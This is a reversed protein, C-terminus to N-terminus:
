LQKLPFVSNFFFKASFYFSNEGSPCEIPHRTHECWKIPHIDPDDDNVWYAYNPPWSDYLIQIEYDRVDVVTAPRILSPVKRDTVELRMGIKFNIPARTHFLRQPVADAKQSKLYTSWKFDSSYETLPLISFKCSYFQSHKM